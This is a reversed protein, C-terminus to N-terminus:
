GCWSAPRWSIVAASVVPDHRLLYALEAGQQVLNTQALGAVKEEFDAISLIESLVLGSDNFSLTKDFDSAVLYTTQPRTTRAAALPQPFPITSM